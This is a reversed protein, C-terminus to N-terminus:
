VGSIGGRFSEAAFLRDRYKLLCAVNKETTYARADDFHEVFM